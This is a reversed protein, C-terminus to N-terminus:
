MGVVQGEWPQFGEGSFPPNSTHLDFGIQCFQQASINRGKYHGPLGRQIWSSFSPM